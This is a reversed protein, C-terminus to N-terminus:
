TSIKELVMKLAMLCTDHQIQKRTRSFCFHAVTTKTNKSALAIYVTGVPKDVTGGTPGAIGTVAIALDTNILKQVGEAMEFATEKSVAGYTALIKPPVGLIKAKVENSYAVVGGKFFASVGPEATLEAAILGGTCSEALALTKQTERLYKVVEKIVVTKM